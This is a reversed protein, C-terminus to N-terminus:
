SRANGSTLQRVLGEILDRVQEPDPDELVDSITMILRGKARKLEVIHGAVDIKTSKQPSSGVPKARSAKTASRNAIWTELDRYTLRYPDPFQLSLEDKDQFLRTCRSVFTPDIGVAAAFQRISAQQRPEKWVTYMEGISIMKEFPALDSRHNNERYRRLLVQWRHAVPEHDHPPIIARVQIGLEEAVARRRRGTVLEFQVGEVSTPEASSPRWDRDVPWVEIPTDQGYKEISDRLDIYDPQDQWDPRRDTGVKDIVQNPDLLISQAGTLVDQVQQARIEDLDQQANATIGTRWAGGQGASVPATEAPNGGLLNASLRRKHGPM